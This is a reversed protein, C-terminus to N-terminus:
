RETKSLRDELKEIRRQHDRVTERVWQPPYEKPLSAFRETLGAIESYVIAGDKATWRNGEMVSLRVDLSHLLLATYGILSVNVSVLIGCAWLLFKTADLKQGMDDNTM